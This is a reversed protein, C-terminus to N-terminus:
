QKWKSNVWTKNRNADDASAALMRQYVVPNSTMEDVRLPEANKDYGNFTCTRLKKDAWQTKPQEILKPSKRREEWISLLRACVAEELKRCSEFVGKLTRDADEDLVM